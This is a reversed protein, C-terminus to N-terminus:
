PPPHIDGFVNRPMREEAGASKELVHDVYETTTLKESFGVLDVGKAEGGSDESSEGDNASRRRWSAFAFAPEVFAHKVDEAAPCVFGFAVLKEDTILVISM